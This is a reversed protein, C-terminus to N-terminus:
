FMRIRVWIGHGKTMLRGGTQFGIPLYCRARVRAEMRDELRVLIWDTEGQGASGVRDAARDGAFPFMPTTCDISRSYRFRGM